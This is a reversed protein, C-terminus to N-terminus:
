HVSDPEVLTLDAAGARAQQHLFADGLSQDAFDAFAHAAQADAKRQILCDVDAGDHRAHLEITDLAHNTLPDGLTCGAPLRLDRQRRAAKIIRGRQQAIHMGCRDDGLLLDEARHERRHRKASWLSATSNAFLM